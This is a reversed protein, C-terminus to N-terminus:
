TQRAVAQASVIYWVRLASLAILIPPRMRSTGPMVSALDASRTMDSTPRVPLHPITVMANHKGPRCVADVCAKDSMAQLLVHQQYM